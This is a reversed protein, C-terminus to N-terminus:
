ERKRYGEVVGPVTGAKAVVSKINGYADLTDTPIGDLMGSSLMAGIGFLSLDAISLSGGVSYGDNSGIMKNLNNLLATLPGEQLVDCCQTLILILSLFPISCSVM